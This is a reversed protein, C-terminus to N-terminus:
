DSDPLIFESVYYDVPLELEAAESEWQLWQEDGSMAALLILYDESM